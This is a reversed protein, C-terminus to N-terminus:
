VLSGGKSSKTTFRRALGRWGELKVKPAMTRLVPSDNRLLWAYSVFTIATLGIASVVYIWVMSTSIIRSFGDADTNLDFFNM